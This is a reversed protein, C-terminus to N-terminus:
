SRLSSLSISYCHHFTHSIGGLISSKMYRHHLRAAPSKAEGTTFSTICWYLPLISWRYQARLSGLFVKVILNEGRSYRLAPLATIEEWCVSRGDNARWKEQKKSQNKNEIKKKLQLTTSKCCQALRLHKVFHRLYIYRYM